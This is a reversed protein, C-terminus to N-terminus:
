NRHILSDSHVISNTLGGKRWFDRVRWQRELGVAIGVPFFPRCNNYTPRNSVPHTRASAKPDHTRPSSRSRVYTPRIIRDFHLSRAINPLSAFKRSFRILEVEALHQTRVSRIPFKAPKLEYPGPNATQLEVDATRAAVPCSIRVTSSVCM